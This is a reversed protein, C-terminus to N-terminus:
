AARFCFFVIDNYLQHADLPTKKFVIWNPGKECYALKSLDGAKLELCEGGHLLNVSRIKLSPGSRVDIRVGWLEDQFGLLSLDVVVTNKKPSANAMKKSVISAISAISAIGAEM